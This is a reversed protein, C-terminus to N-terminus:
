YEYQSNFIQIEHLPYLDSNQQQRCDFYVMYQTELSFTSSLKVLNTMILYDRLNIIRLCNKKKKKQHTHKYSAILLGIRSGCMM